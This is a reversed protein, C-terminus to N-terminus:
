LGSRVKEGVTKAGSGCYVTSAYTAVALSLRPFALGTRLMESKSLLIPAPRISSTMWTASASCSSTSSIILLLTYTHRNNLWSM